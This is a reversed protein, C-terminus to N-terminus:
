RSSQHASTTLPAEPSVDENGIEELNIVLGLQVAVRRVWTTQRAAHTLLIYLKSYETLRRLLPHRFPPVSSLIPLDNQYVGLDNEMTVSIVLNKVAAGNKEAYHILVHLYGDLNTGFNAINFM